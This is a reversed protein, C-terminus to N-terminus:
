ANRQILNICDQNRCSHYLRKLLSPGTVICLIFMRALVSVLDEANFPNISYVERQPIYDYKLQISEDDNFEFVKFRRLSGKRYWIVMFEQYMQLTEIFEEKSEQIIIRGFKVISENLSLNKQQIVKMNDATFAVLYRNLATGLNTLVYFYGNHHHLESKVETNDQFIITLNGHNGSSLIVHKSRSQGLSKFM